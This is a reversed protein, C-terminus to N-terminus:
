GLHSSNLRTSKRDPSSALVKGDASYSLPVNVPPSVLRQSSAAETDILGLVTLMYWFLMLISARNKPLRVTRLMVNRWISCHAVCRLASHEARVNLASRSTKRRM